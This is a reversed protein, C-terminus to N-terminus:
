GKRASLGDMRKKLGDVIERLEALKAEYAEDHSDLQREVWLQLEAKGAVDRNWWCGPYYSPDIEEVKVRPDERHPVGTKIMPLGQGYGFVFLDLTRLGVRSVIAASQGGDEVPSESWWVVDGLRAEPMTWPQKEVATAQDM